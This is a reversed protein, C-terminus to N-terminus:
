SFLSLDGAVMAHHKRSSRISFLPVYMLFDTWLYVIYLPGGPPPLAICFDGMFLWCTVFCFVLGAELFSWLRYQEGFVSHDCSSSSPYSMKANMSSLLFTNLMWSPVCLFVSQTPSRSVSTIISYIPDEIPPSTLTEIWKSLILLIFGLELICLGSWTLLLDTVFSLFFNTACCPWTIILCWQATFFSHCLEESAQYQCFHQLLENMVSIESVFSIHRNM